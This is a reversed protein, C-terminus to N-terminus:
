WNEDLTERSVPFDDSSRTIIEPVVSTSATPAPDVGVSAMGKSVDRLWQLREEHELRDEETVAMQRGQKLAYVTEQASIRKIREPVSALPISYRRQIYSDILADASAIAAALADTDVEGTAEVDTLEVLRDEGGAALQVDAQACYAM